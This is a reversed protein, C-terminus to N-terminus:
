LLLFLSRTCQDYVPRMHYVGGPLSCGSLQSSHIIGELTIVGMWTRLLNISPYSFQGRFHAKTCDITIQLSECFFSLNTGNTKTFAVGAVVRCKFFMVM